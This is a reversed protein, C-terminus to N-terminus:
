LKKIEITVTKNRNNRSKDGWGVRKRGKVEKNRGKELGRGHGGVWGEWEEVIAATFLMTVRWYM